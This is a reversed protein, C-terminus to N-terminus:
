QLPCPVTKLLTNVLDLCRYFRVLKDKICARLGLATALFTKGTGVAGVAIINECREIFKLEVLDTKSTTDPLTVPSWDFNELSKTNVFGATKILRDIRKLRRAKIEEAFLATLYQEPENFPVDQYIRPVNALKLAKCQESLSQQM